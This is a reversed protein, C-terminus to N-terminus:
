VDVPERKEKRPKAQKSHAKIVRVELSSKDNDDGLLMGYPKLDDVRDFIVKLVALGPISLFMGSIGCLAGGVLVGVITVLANIKVKSGVIIPMLFNNDIFQVVALIVGVWLVDTVNESSILTVLMCFLNATIMGIYPVLNLLAAILGLFIAYKIGLILFGTSNLAFVIAMEIFLGIVYLQSVVRSEILIEKVKEERGDKFVCILFKKILDRYYLILFAYIPLLVMYSLAQTISLLTQGVITGSSINHTTDRLYQAQKRIPINFHKHVWSELTVLLDNLRSEITPLDDLFNLIQASFFYIISCVVVIGITVATLISFFKNMHLKREFFEVMPLMMTAILISFFIPVLINQALYLLLLILALSLLTLGLRKYLPSTTTTIMKGTSDCFFSGDKM